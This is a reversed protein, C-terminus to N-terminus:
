VHNAFEGHYKARAECAVLEALEKDKYSGFSCVRNNLRLTVRWNKTDHRYTVNKCGRTSSRNYGNQAKTASRLNEIRNDNKIGNIHDICHPIYGHHMAFVIQHAGYKKGNLEIKSYGKANVFGARKGRVKIPANENWYLEGNSYELLHKFSAVRDTNTAPSALTFVGTGTAAGQISIKSM